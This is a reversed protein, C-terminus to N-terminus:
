FYPNIKWWKYGYATLRSGSCVSSIKGVNAKEHGINVLWDVADKKTKFVMGNSCGVMGMHRQRKDSFDNEVFSWMFGYSGARNKKGKCCNCISSASANTFGISKLWLVAEPYCNFDMGNSCYITKSKVERQANSMNIRTEKTRKKGINKQRRKEIISNPPNSAGDGGDTMNCLNERGYYAILEKEVEIAYWDQVGSIYFEISYGHKAVINKWWNSRGIKDYARYSTGKGVYFVKGTTAKRHLYVYFDKSKTNSKRATM